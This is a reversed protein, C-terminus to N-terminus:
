GLGNGAGRAAEQLLLAVRRASEDWGRDEVTRRIAAPNWRAALARNLAAALEDPRGPAVLIGSEGERILEPIGGV